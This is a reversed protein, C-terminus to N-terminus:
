ASASRSALRLAARSEASSSALARKVALRSSALAARLPLWWGWGGGLLFLAVTLTAAIRSGLFHRAFAYLGFLLAVSLMFSQLPLVVTPDLGLRVAAAATVSTLYHYTLSHGWLRPNTPPFNDGYAFSSVDGLHQAWDAWLNSWGAWLGAGDVTLASWWLVALRVVFVGLVVGTWVVGPSRLHISPPAVTASVPLRRGREGARLVLTLAVCTLAWLIVLAPSLGFLCALALLGLSSAVTGAPIGYAACEFVTFDPVFRRLAVVGPAALAGFLALAASLGILTPASETRIVVV